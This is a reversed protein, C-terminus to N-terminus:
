AKIKSREEKKIRELVRNARTSSMTVEETDGELFADLRELDRTQLSSLDSGLSHAEQDVLKKWAAKRSDCWSSKEEYIEQINTFKGSKFRAGPQTTTKSEIAGGM